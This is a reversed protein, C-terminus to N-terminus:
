NIQHIQIKITVRSPSLNPDCPVILTDSDKIIEEDDTLQQNLTSTSQREDSMSTTISTGTGTGTLSKHNSISNNLSNTM